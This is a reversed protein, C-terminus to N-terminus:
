VGLKSKLLENVAQPNAKGGSSKMVQGVFWGLSQPKDKVQAAKDPNAAIIDDVVKEIASLDTVQKMGRSEVLARPDGGEQWVIEFLDKAIKGSITGEGILDVIAALQESTVPSGTIDRGEKNLRGFLENIVWNAAMKGDRARNALRDLVTEYFVASEREAVLVSADYASLGFDAVFRTKKQDPLEPLKAKLEDVFDQSFELPLLDPDPFYRYDHAEEKSRMSRTEGKNPDYLRTEQDIQGGDELIEIQRRAEYEIAQGIFTISNMNKIECRTGLPAGPKRVSVNVDARLSGKEMDGDCTGLYRLISRLKTVYAKAQEADRIDPKSVIEMLAVGSRNLDVNSMTPSRDHLLKGADQELHLREIGISVSRGGDLEVVVEGEGVVPSKYQSIQYGQPLDPYFYNKRDFVSRLNIRANLGLGTRVAQRVCEENIVPLMGPMAADVLSVHSNPEGGFATSAGSFLKSNSTVQAHIEMGIVMEWDGTSGKLLKHTATSM